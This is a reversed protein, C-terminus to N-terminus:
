QVHSIVARFKGNTTRPIHEILELEVNMEGVRDLLRKIITKGNIAIYNSTPVIRILIHELSTQVIQAEIIPMDNFIPNLWFINRGDKTVILDNARGEVKNLVPLIRGCQCQNNNAQGRDGVEYRILPMDANLLGTAVINAVIETMNEQEDLIEILGVEPSIHM